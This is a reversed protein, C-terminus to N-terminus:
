KANLKGSIIMSMTEMYDRYSPDSFKLDEAKQLAHIATTHDQGFMKGVDQLSFGAKRMFYMICRRAEVLERKRSKKRINELPIGTAQCVARVIIIKRRSM